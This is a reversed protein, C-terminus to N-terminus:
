DNYDSINRRSWKYDINGERESDIEKGRGVGEKSWVRQRENSKGEAWAKRVGCGKGRM